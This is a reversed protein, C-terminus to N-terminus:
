KNGSKGLTKGLSSARADAKQTDIDKLAKEFVALFDAAFTHGHYDVLRMAGKVMAENVNQSEDPFGKKLLFDM